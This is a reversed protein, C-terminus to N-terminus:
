SSDQNYANNLYMHSIKFKIEDESNLQDRIFRIEKIIEKKEVPDNVFMLHSLLCNLQDYLVKTAFLM